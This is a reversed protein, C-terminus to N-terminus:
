VWIAVAAMLTMGATLAIIGCRCAIHEPEGIIHVAGLYLFTGAALSNLIATVYQTSTNQILTGVYSTILIGLPTMM